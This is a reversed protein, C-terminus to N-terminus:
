LTIVMMSKEFIFIINNDDEDIDTSENYFRGLSSLLGLIILNVLDNWLEIELYVNCHM